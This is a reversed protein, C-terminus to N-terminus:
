SVELLCNFAEKARLISLWVTFQTLMKRTSKTTPKIGKQASNAYTLTTVKLEFSRCFNLMCSNFTYYRGFLLETSKNQLKASLHFDELQSFRVSAM